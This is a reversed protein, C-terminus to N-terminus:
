SGMLFWQVRYFKMHLYCCTALEEIKFSALAVTLDLNHSLYGVQENYELKM